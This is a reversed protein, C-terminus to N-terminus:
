RFWCPRSRAAAASLDALPDGAPAPPYRGWTGTSRIYAIIAHGATSTPRRSHSCWSAMRLVHLYGEYFNRRHSVTSPATLDGHGVWVGRTPRPRKLLTTAPRSLRAASGPPSARTAPRTMSGPGFDTAVLLTNEDVWALSQKAEPLAFGNPLFAKANVDFERMQNADAGGRSLYLLCRTYAPELCESGSFSWPV